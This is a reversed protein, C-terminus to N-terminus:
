VGTAPSKVKRRMLLWGAIGSGLLCFTSPEPVTQFQFNPGVVADGASGETASPFTFGADSTYAISGIQIEPSVTAYGNPETVDPGVVYFSFSGAPSNMLYAALYYTQNAILLASPISQYLSQNNPTSSANIIESALLVGSADWLGVQIQQSGSLIYDFAGLATVELDSTPQFTWGLSRNVSSGIASYVSGNTLSFNSMAEMSGQATATLATTLIFAWCFLTKM